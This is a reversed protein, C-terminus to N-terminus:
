SHARRKSVRAAPVDFISRLPSGFEQGASAVSMVDSAVSTHLAAVMDDSRIRSVLLQATGFGGDLFEAFDDLTYLDMDALVVALASALARPAALNYHRHDSKSRLLVRM